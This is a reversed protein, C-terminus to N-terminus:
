AVKSIVETTYQLNINKKRDKPIKPHDKQQAQKKKNKREPSKPNHHLVRLKLLNLEAQGYM